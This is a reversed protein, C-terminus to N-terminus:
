QLTWENANWLINGLSTTSTTTGKLRNSIFVPTPNNMMPLISLVDAEHAIIQGLIQIRQPTPITVQYREILADLELSQYRSYNGGQYNKEPSPYAATSLLPLRDTDTPTGVIVEFGPMTRRYENDLARQAPVALEEVDVGVAKWYTAIASQLQMQLTIRNNARIEVVVKQGSPDHYFGDGARTYGLREISQSAARADYPYKAIRSEIERYQAQGPLLFSDMVQGVGMQFTEVLAPRDIAHLLAGRFQPNALVAPTPNTYQGYVPVWLGGYYDVHGDKWQSRVQIAEDIALSDTGYSADGVGSLITASMANPDRVERLEIEDIKPRGLVYDPNAALVLHSGQVRDRLRYPGTGIFETTWYPQQIMSQKNELYSAELLHKPLPQAFPFVGSFMKDADIYARTWYVTVTRDDPAEVRDVSAYATTRTARPIEADREMQATFVLDGATFQTGDHWTVRPKLKWTTEMSGDPSVKWLGNEITPVQEALRPQLAGVNDRATLGANLLMEVGTTSASGGQRAFASVVSMEGLTLVTARTPGTAPQASQGAANPAQLSGANRNSVAPSSVSPSCVAVLALLTLASLVPRSLRLMKAGM